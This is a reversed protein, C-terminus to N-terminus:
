KKDQDKQEKTKVYNSLWADDEEDSPKRNARQWEYEARDLPDIKGERAALLRQARAEAAAAERDATPNYEEDPKSWKKRAFKESDSEPLTLARKKCNDCTGCECQVREENAARLKKLRLMTLELTPQKNQRVEDVNKRGLLSFFKQFM